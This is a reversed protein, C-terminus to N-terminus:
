VTVKEIDAVIGAHDSVGFQLRVNSAQYGKSTFLGDVMMNLQGRRHFNGDISTTYEPPINDTYRKRLIEFIEKGRPANFDGALVLEPFRETLALLKQIDERQFDDAEGDPNWTFHTTAVQFRTGEKEIEASVLALNKTRNSAEVSTSDLDQINEANGRYYGVSQSVFPRTSFIGVGIVEHPDLWRTMPAYVHYPANMAKGIREIDSVPLEQICAVDPQEKALFSEVADLHRDIEINISILKLTRKM